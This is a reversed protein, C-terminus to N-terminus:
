SAMRLGELASRTSPGVRLRVRELDAPTDVDDILNPLAATVAELGRERAARLFRDASGPGYHPEFLQPSPLGLANTRRDASVVLAIRGAEAVAFLAHLDRTTVCPVDANVILVPEDPLSALAAAVARSQGGGPEDAAEGGADRAIRRGSEDATVVTTRAVQTSARVVDALMGLVVARHQEPGLDVLRQKGGSGRFPVVIAAM